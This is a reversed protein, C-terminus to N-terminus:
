MLPIGDADYGLDKLTKEVAAKAKKKAKPTIGDITIVMKLQVKGDADPGCSSFGDNLDCITARKKAM